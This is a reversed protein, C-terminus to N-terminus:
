TTTTVARTSGYAWWCWVCCWRPWPRRQRSGRVPRLPKPQPAKQLKHDRAEQMLELTEQQLEPSPAANKFAQQYQDKFNM